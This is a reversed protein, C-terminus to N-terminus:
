DHSGEMVHLTHLFDTHPIRATKEIGRSRTIYLVAAAFLDHLLRSPVSYKQLLSVEASQNRSHYEQCLVLKHKGDVMQGCDKRCYKPVFNSLNTWLRTAKKYPYGYKCYTVDHYPIAQMFPRTKLYGTAPNELIFVKPRLFKIIALTRKVIRDASEMDRPARTKAISYETCPPSAWIIDFHGVPFSKRYQWTLINECITPEYECEVDLSTVDFDALKSKRLYNGVSGSGKFLELVTIKRKRDAMFMGHFFVWNSHPAAHAADFDMLKTHLCRHYFHM